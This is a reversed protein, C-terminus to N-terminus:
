YFGNFNIASIIKCFFIDEIVIIFNDYYNMCPVSSIFIYRINSLLKIETSLASNTYQDSVRKEKMNPTRVIASHDFLQAPCHLMPLLCRKIMSQELHNGAYKKHASRLIM